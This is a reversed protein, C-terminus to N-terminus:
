ENNEMPIYLHFSERFNGSPIVKINKYKKQIANLIQDRFPAIVKGAHKGSFFREESLVIAEYKRSLINEVLIDTNMMKRKKVEEVEMDPRFIFMEMNLLPESVLGSHSLLPTFSLIMGNKNKVNKKIETSVNELEAIDSSQYSTTVYEGGVSLGQTLFLVIFIAKLAQSPFVNLIRHILWISLIIMFPYVYLKGVPWDSISIYYFSFNLIVVTSIYYLLLTSKERKWLNFILVGISVACFINFPYYSDFELFRIKFFKVLNEVFGIAVHVGNAGMVSKITFNFTITDFLINEAGYFFYYRVIYYVGLVTSFGIALLANRDKRYYYFLGPIMFILFLSQYDVLYRNSLVLFNLLVFIFIKKNLSINSVFLFASIVLLLANLTYTANMVYGYLAIPSLFAIYSLLVMLNNHTLRYIIIATVNILMLFLCFSILRGTIFSAGFLKFLSGYFEIHLPLRHYFFDVYPTYGKSFLVAGNYYWNEDTWINSHYV